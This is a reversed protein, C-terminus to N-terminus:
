TRRHRYFVAVKYLVMGHNNRPPCNPKL